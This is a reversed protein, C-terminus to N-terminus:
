KQNNEKQLGILYNRILSDALIEAGESKVADLKGSIALSCVGHLSAWLVRAARDAQEKDNEILPAVLKSVMQFLTDIKDQFWQPLTNGPALKHEVLMSWLHYNDRSFSVYTQGLQVLAEFPDKKNKAGKLLSAQLSDLTTGNVSLIIEDLNAFVNYITGHACGIQKAIRRTSLGAAGEKAVIGAAVELIGERLEQYDIKQKRGM